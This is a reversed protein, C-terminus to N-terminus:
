VQSGNKLLVPPTLRECEQRINFAAEDSSAFSEAALQMAFTIGSKFGDTAAARAFSILLDGFHAEVSLKDYKDDTYLAIDESIKKHYYEYEASERKDKTVTSLLENIFNMGM